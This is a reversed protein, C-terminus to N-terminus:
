SLRSGGRGRGSAVCRQVALGDTGIDSLELPADSHVLCGLVSRRVAPVCDWGIKGMLTWTEHQSVGLLRMAAGLQALQKTLRTPAEPEPLYLLERTYGDRAVGTRARTVVDALNLLPETLDNPLEIPGCRQFSDLYRAVAPWLRERLAKERGRNKLARRALARRPAPPMRYLIFREGMVALFRHQDDIVQTVGALLGLKGQWEVRHGTGFGKEIKGDAVERLQGLIQNRADRHMTLVTTLDKFAIVGFEGIQTLLSAPEGKREWGSILTQPTLSSLSMVGPAQTTSSVIESKGSGPAGVLLPWVADGDAYNAVIGALAVLIAGRDPVFLLKEYASVVEELTRPTQSKAKAVRSTPKRAM